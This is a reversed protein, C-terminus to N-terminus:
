MKARVMMQCEESNGSKMFNERTIATELMLLLCVHATSNKQKENHGLAM